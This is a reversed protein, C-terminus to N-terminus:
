LLPSMSVIVLELREFPWIKRDGEVGAKRLFADPCPRLSDLGEDVLLDWGHESYTEFLRSQSNRLDERGTM